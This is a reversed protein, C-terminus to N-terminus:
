QNYISNKPIVKVSFENWESEVELKNNKYFYDIVIKVRYTGIEFPYYDKLNIEYNLKDNKGFNILKTEDNEYKRYKLVDVYINILFGRVYKQLFIRCTASSNNNGDDITLKKYIKIKKVPSLNELNPILIIDSDNQLLETKCKIFKPRPDNQCFSIKSILIIFCIIMVYRLFFIKRM